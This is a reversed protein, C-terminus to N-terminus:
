GEFGITETDSNEKNEKNDFFIHEFVLSFDFDVTTPNDVIYHYARNYAENCERLTQPEREM